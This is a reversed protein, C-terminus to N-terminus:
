EFCRLGRVVSASRTIITVRVGMESGAGTGDKISERPASSGAGSVFRSTRREEEGAEFVDVKLKVHVCAILFLIVCM